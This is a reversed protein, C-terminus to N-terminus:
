ATAKAERIRMELHALAETVQDILILCVDGPSLSALARDIAIFEGHIEEVNRTRTAGVLGEQLLALVEGDERGRQCADQYLLVTDFAEGLIRTQDRIDEDRRDGAGSIVVTRHKGPLEAVAGVLAKMADPNHGYDAIVTAGRYELMNFRGPTSAVDSVFSALGARMTDADVNVAWCAAVAAMVNDVQFGIRGGLTLPIDALSLRIAEEGQTVCSIADGDVCVVPRGQARHTLIIPNSRDRSFFITHGPCVASLRASM